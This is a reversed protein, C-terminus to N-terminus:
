EELVPTWSQDPNFLEMKILENLTAPGFDEQFVIGNNSVMFTKIGTVGYEAPEAV